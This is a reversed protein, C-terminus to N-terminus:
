NDKLANTKDVIPKLLYKKTPDSPSSGKEIVFGQNVLEKLRNRTSRKNFKIAESVEQTTLGNSHKLLDIIERSRKDLNPKTKEHEKIKSILTDDWGMRFELGNIRHELVLLKTLIKHLIDEDENKSM